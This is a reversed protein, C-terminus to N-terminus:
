PTTRRCEALEAAANDRWAYGAWAGLLVLLLVGLLAAAASAILRLDPTL